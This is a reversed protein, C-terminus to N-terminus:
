ALTAGNTSAAIQEVLALDAGTLETPFVALFSIEGSNYSSSLLGLRTFSGALAEGAVPTFGTGNRRLVETTSTRISTTVFSGTSTQSSAQLKNTGGNLGTLMNNTTAWWADYAHASAGTLGVSNIGASARKFARVVTMQETIPIANLLSYYDDVGGFSLAYKYQSVPIEKVSVNDITATMSNGDTSVARISINNPRAASSLVVRSIRGTSTIASTLFEPDLLFLRGNASIADIDFEVLYAFGDTVAIGGIQTLDSVTAAGSISAKGGSITWGTGKAWATDSDFGGNTVLEPQGSVDYLAPDTQIVNNARAADSPTAWTGARLHNGPLERVSINDFDITGANFVGILRLWTTTGSAVFVGSHTGTGVNIINLLTSGGQSTGVWIAGTAASADFGNLELKYARGAVTTFSQDLIARNSSNVTTFVARGSVVAVSGTGTSSNTWGTLDSDFGGNTVLESTTPAALWESLTKGGLQSLDPVLGVPQGAAALTGGSTGQWGAGMEPWYLAVPELALLRQLPTGVGLAVGADGGLVGAKFLNIGVGIM